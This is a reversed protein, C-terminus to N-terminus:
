ADPWREQFLARNRALDEQITPVQGHPRHVIHLGSHYPMIDAARLRMWFDRDEYGYGTYDECYGGVKAWTAKPFVAVTGGWNESFLAAGSPHVPEAYAFFDGPTDALERLDGLRADMIMDLDCVLIHHNNAREIGRNLAQARNFRECPLHPTAVMLEDCYRMQLTLSQVLSPLFHAREPTFHYPVVITLGRM